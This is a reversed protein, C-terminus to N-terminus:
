GNWRMKGFPERISGLEGNEWKCNRERSLTAVKVTELKPNVGLKRFKM